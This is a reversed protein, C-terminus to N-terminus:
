KRPRRRIPKIEIRTFQGPPIIILSGGKTRRRFGHTMKNALIEQAQLENACKWTWSVKGWSIILRHTHM